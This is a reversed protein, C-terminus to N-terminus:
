RSANPSAETPPSFNNLLVAETTTTGRTFVIRRFDSTFDFNLIRDSGLAVIKSPKGGGIPQQWLEAVLQRAYVLSKSDASWRIISREPLPNLNFMSLPKGGGIPFIATKWPQEAGEIYVTSAFFKGDPSISVSWATEDGTVRVPAGGDTPVKYITSPKESPARYFIWQGDPALNIREEGAGDTMQIQNRGDADMRWIHSLGTRSSVFFIHEGGPSIRPSINLDGANATLQRADDGNADMAWLDIKGSRPSAYIIKGDPAITLGFFGDSASNGFTLQRVNAGSPFDASWLNQRSVAQAAVLLRADASFSLWDYNNFDNTVRRAAANGGDAISLEWIQLPMLESENATVLLSAGNAPNQAATGIEKWAAPIPLRRWAGDAVAIELLQPQFIKEAMRQACVVIREGDASWAMQSGWAVFWEKSNEAFRFLEREEGGNAAVIMLKGSRVFVIRAGDPSVAPPSIVDRAIQQPSGGFIPVRFLTANPADPLNSNYYLQEGGPAFVLHRYGIEQAVTPMIKVASGTALDKLWIEETQKESKVYALYKGDPSLAPTWINTDPTLRKFEIQALVPTQIEPDKNQFTLSGGNRFAAFLIIAPLAILLAVLGLRWAKRRPAPANNRTEERSFLNSAAGTAAAQEVAAPTKIEVVQAAFRYGRRRLTEILPKGDGADGLAKRLRFLNQSLNSEEVISDTWVKNMLEDKTVIKGANEVLVLLTEVVKPALSIEQGDRYLLLHAADLRFNEFEYIIHNRPKAMLFNFQSYNLTLDLSM